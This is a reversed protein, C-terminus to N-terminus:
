VGEASGWYVDKTMKDWTVMILGDFDVELIAIGM